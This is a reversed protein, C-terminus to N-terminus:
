LAPKEKTLLCYYLSDNDLQPLVQKGHITDIYPLPLSFEAKKANSNYRLFQEIVFDNEEALVSCTAFLLQGKHKLLSWLRSLMKLSESSQLIIDEKKRLWPIDPHRRMVGTGSCPVDALILDFARGHWWESPSLASGVVVKGHTRTRGFNERLRRSRYEDIELAILELENNAIDQLHSAKGGPAACADLVSMKPQPNLIHAACQAAMDQVVIAGVSYGPLKEVMIPQRIILSNEYCGIESEIGITSLQKQYQEVQIRKQQIRLSIVPQTTQLQRLQQHIETAIPQMQEILQGTYAGLRLAPDQCFDQALLLQNLPEPFQYHQIELQWGEDNIASQAKRLIANVFNKARLLGVQECAEVCQHIAAHEAYGQALQWIGLELILQVKPHLDAQQKGILKLAQASLVGHWRLVGFCLSHLLKIDAKPVKAFGSNLADESLRGRYLIQTLAEAAVARTNYRPQRFKRHSPTRRQM